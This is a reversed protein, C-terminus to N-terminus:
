RVMEWSLQTDAAIPTAAQRGLLEDLLDPELGGGPRKVTVSEATLVEDSAIDRAAVISKRASRRVEQECARADLCGTGLAAEAERITDIYRALQPPELSMAHDPGDAARDLTFHKEIVRAGAATALGGITESTTHDSFGAHRGFRHQLQRVARLNAQDWPTPYSSVCHLLVTREAAGWQDFRRMATEIEGTDATGTSVILPLSTGTAARALPVNNLDTSALKIARVDLEVLMALDPLAFPTALFEVGRRACHRQIVAFDDARLELRRLMQHQSEAGANAQQYAAAAAAATVLTDAAFVQFKVADAGTEAAVDVMKLALERSGNHNVGAEAIVYVPRGTGIVAPGITVDPPGTETPPQCADMDRDARLLAEAIHFDLPGDIDVSDEPQQTIARRDDGLFGQFDGEWRPAAFLAARTVAVVAGDHYYFPELDQRRYISNPRFQSMRDGDLRHVWDPHQKTVPAVTRVSDAGTDILHRVARDIFGDARIPINGYLLVVVEVTRGATREFARLAHRAVDDVTATDGALKAPRDVVAIGRGRALRQAAESDSSLVIADLSKATQAHDFTYDIVPRGLLPRVCKDPLGK